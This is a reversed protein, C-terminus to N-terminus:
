SFIRLPMKGTRALSMDTVTSGAIYAVIPLLMSMTHKDSSALGVAVISHLKFPTVGSVISTVSFAHQLALLRLLLIVIRFTCLYLLPCSIVHETGPVDTQLTAVRLTAHLDELRM